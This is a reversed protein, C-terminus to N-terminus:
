RRATAHVSVQGSRSQDSPAHDPLAHDSLPHVTCIRDACLELLELDHSILIVVAGDRALARMRGAIAVLHNRDVGSTPEDFVYVRKRCAMASAIVLRQKQGGSLSLPHRGALEGLDLGSLLSATAAADCREDPLGLTVEGAVTDAFLQRHVDQMVIYSAATRGRQTTPRGDLSIRSGRAPAVLGCIVKALTTKGAGNPGVLASIRGAPLHLLDIDLVPHGRYGFRVDELTLGQSPGADQTPAPHEQRPSRAPATHLAPRVLTRLGLRERSGEDMAFFRDGSQDSEIRGDRLLIVRDALGRLFYLRHEAVVITRGAAKIRGLLESFEDIAEPSLNSTPEDLLLVETGAALAQACAVKQLEGGSLRALSRGMLATIGVEEAARATRSRILRPALGYNEGQFALEGAVDSTFFQTRPNQFVTASTRGAESIPATQVDIGDVRM